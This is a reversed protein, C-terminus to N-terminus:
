KSTKGYKDLVSLDVIDEQKKNMDVTSSISFLNDKVNQIVDNLACNMEDQIDPNKIKKNQDLNM